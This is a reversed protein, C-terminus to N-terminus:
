ETYAYSFAHRISYELHKSNVNLGGQENPKFYYSWAALLLIEEAM